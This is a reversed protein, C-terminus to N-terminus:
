FDRSPLVAASATRRRLTVVVPFHDSYGDYYTPSEGHTNRRMPYPAGYEGMKMKDEVYVRYSGFDAVFLSAPVGDPLLGRSVNITDFSNWTKASTYFFTGRKEKPLLSSLCFLCDGAELVETMNTRFMACDLPVRDEIDDNFDGTVLIAAAPDAELCRRYEERVKDAQVERKAASIKANGTRSKWHNGIVTLTAGGGLNFDACPSSHQGSTAGLWKVRAPKIRSLMACDLGRPDRSDKHVIHEMPWGFASALVEQLDELVRRNEVEEICLIDPKMASVVDAINTLKLRYRTETWRAWGGPSYHDDGSSDPDDEADYFNEANWQAVVVSDPAREAAAASARPTAVLAAALAAAPLIRLFAPFTAM